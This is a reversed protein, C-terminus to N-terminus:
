PENKGIRSQQQAGEVQVPALALDQAELASRPLKGLRSWDDLCGM